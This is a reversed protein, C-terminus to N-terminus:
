ACQTLCRRVGNESGFGLALPLTIGETQGPCLGACQLVLHGLNEEELGCTRCMPYVSPDFDPMTEEESVQTKVAVAWLPSRARAYQNRFFDMNAAYFNFGSADQTQKSTLCTYLSADKTPSSAGQNVRKTRPGVWIARFPRSQQAGLVALHWVAWKECDESSGSLRKQKAARESAQRLKEELTALM